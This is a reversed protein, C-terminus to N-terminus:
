FSFSLGFTMVPYFRFSDLDDNLDDVESQLDRDLAEQLASDSAVAAARLKPAGHYMVGLDFAFVLRRGPGAAHGYGVGLYPCWRNFSLRASLDEVRYDIGELEVTDGLEASGTLENRNYVVGASLRFNSAFPHWDLLLPFSQLSLEARVDDCNDDDDYEGSWSFMNLGGRLSLKETLGVSADGGFGTTGAKLSLGFGRASASTSAFAALLGALVLTHMRPTCRLVSCCHATGAIKAFRARKMGHRRQESGQM